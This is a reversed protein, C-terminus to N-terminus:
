QTRQDQIATVIAEVTTLGAIKYTPFRLNFDDEIQVMLQMHGISDWQPPNGIQLDGQSEEPTLQFVGVILTRVRSELNDETINSM